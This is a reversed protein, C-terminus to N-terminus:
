NWSWSRGRASRSALRSRCSCREEQGNWWLARHCRIEIGAGDQHSLEAARRDHLRRGERQDEQRRGRPLLPEQLRTADYRSFTSAASSAARQVTSFGLRHRSKWRFQRCRQGSLPVDAHDAPRTTAIASSSQWGPPTCTTGMKGKPLDAPWRDTPGALVALPPGLPFQVQDASPLKAYQGGRGEWAAETGIFDGSWAVVSRVRNADFAVHTGEKFGVLIATASVGDLFTRFVIPEDGPILLRSPGVILGAPPAARKGAALYAWISDIQRHMDGKEIEPFFSVGKPWGGPMRTRPKLQQPDVLLAHFWEPQLRRVAQLLDLGEAGSVRSGGWAHCNVCGLM